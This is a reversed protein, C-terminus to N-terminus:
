TERGAGDRDGVQSRALRRADRAVDPCHADLRPGADRREFARDSVPGALKKEDELAAPTHGADLRPSM